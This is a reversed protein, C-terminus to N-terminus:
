LFAQKSMFEPNSLDEQAIPIVAPTGVVCPYAEWREKKSTDGHPFVIKHIGTLYEKVNSPSKLFLLAKVCYDAGLSGIFIDRLDSFSMSIM